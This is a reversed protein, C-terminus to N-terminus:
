FLQGIILIGFVPFWSLFLLLLIKNKMYYLLSQEAVFGSVRPNVYIGKVTGIHNYSFFVGALTTMELSQGNILVRYVPIDLNWRFGPVVSVIQADISAGGKKLRLWILFQSVSAALIVFWMCLLLLAFSLAMIFDQNLLKGILCFAFLTVLLIKIFLLCRKGFVEELATKNNKM